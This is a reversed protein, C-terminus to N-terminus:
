PGEGVDEYDMQVAELGVPEPSALLDRLKHAERDIAKVHALKNRLCTLPVSIARQKVVENTNAYKREM